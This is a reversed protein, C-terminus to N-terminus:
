WQRARTKMEGGAKELLTKSTKDKEISNRDLCSYLPLKWASFEGGGEFGFYLQSKFLTPKSQM